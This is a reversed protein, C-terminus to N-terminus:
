IREIRVYNFRIKGVGGERVLLYYSFAENVKAIDVVYRLSGPDGTPTSIRNNANRVPDPNRLVMTWSREEGQITQIDAIFRFKAGKKGKWVGKPFELRANGEGMQYFGDKIPMPKGGSLGSLFPCDKMPNHSEWVIKRKVKSEPATFEVTLETGGKKWCNLPIVRFRYKNGPDFFSGPVDIEYKNPREHARQWADGFFDRRGRSKWKGDKDLYELFVNYIYPRMEGEPVPVTLMVGGDEKLPAVKLAAGSAYL